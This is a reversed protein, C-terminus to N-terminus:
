ARSFGKRSSLDPPGGKVAGAFRMWPKEKADTKVLTSELSERVIAAMPLGTLRARRRIRELLDKPLRITIKASM